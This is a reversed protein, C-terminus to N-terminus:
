IISFSNPGASNATHIFYDRTVTPVIWSEGKQDNVTHIIQYLSLSLSLPYPIGITLLVVFKVHTGVLAFFRIYYSTLPNFLYLLFRYTKQLKNILWHLFYTHKLNWNLYWFWIWYWYWYWLRIWYDFVYSYWDLLRIWNVYRDLNRNVHRCWVWYM